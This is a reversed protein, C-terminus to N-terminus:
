ADNKTRQRPFLRGTQRMYDCYEQGFFERM